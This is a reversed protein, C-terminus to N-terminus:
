LNWYIIFEMFPKFFFFFVFSYFLKYSSIVSIRYVKKKKRKELPKWTLSSSLLLCLCTTLLVYCCIRKYAHPEWSSEERQKRGCPHETCSCSRVTETYSTGHPSLVCGAAAWEPQLLHESCGMHDARWLPRSHDRAGEVRGHKKM